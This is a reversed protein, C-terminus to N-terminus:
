LAMPELADLDRVGAALRDPAVGNDLLHIDTNTSAGRLYTRLHLTLRSVSQGPLAVEFRFKEIGDGRIVSPICEWSCYNSSLTAVEASALKRALTSSSSSSGVAGASCLRPIGQSDYDIIDASTAEDGAALGSDSHALPLGFCLLALLSVARSYTLTVSM